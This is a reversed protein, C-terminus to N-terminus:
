GQGLRSTKKKSEQIQERLSKIKELANEMQINRKFNKESERIAKINDGVKM